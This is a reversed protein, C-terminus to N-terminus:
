QGLMERVADLVRAASIHTICESIKGGGCGDQGCPRCPYDSTVLRHPARWPGWELEDSPGFLAVVPTQVAAAIHMPASDVGVFCKAGATLAALQKLSLQGALDVAPKTLRALVDAVMARERLDPASTLVVTEGGDQLANILEAMRAAPWTKFLWRSTPHIHVYQGRAIGHRALADAIHAEAAPGPVVSLGRQGPQSHIGLRRLADLHREVAHRPARPLPYLHTFATRWLRGRKEPYIAAVSYRPRLMQTLWAGRAHETLHVILDYSRARLSKLLALEGRVQTGAGQRKWRRDVTFVRDIAPHLTLMDATDRYVLADIEIHPANAKLVSFVPSTLLVDGHHRLKIVLARQIAALDVADTVM